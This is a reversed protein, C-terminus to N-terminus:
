SGTSTANGLSSREPRRSSASFRTAIVRPAPRGASGINESSAASQILAAIWSGHAVTRM